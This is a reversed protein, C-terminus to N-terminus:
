VHHQTLQVPERAHVLLQNQGQIGQSGSLLINGLLHTVINQDSGKESHLVYGYLTQSYNM